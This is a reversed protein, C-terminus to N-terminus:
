KSWQVPHGKESCFWGKWPKGAQSTGSKFEMSKGCVECKNKSEHVENDGKAIWEPDAKPTQTAEVLNIYEQVANIGETVEEWSDGRVVIQEKNGGVFRSWQYKNYDKM